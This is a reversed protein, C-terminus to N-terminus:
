GSSLSDKFNGKVSMIWEFIKHAAAGYWGAQEISASESTIGTTHKLSKLLLPFVTGKFVIDHPSYYSKNLTQECQM